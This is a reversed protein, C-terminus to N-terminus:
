FQIFITTQYLRNLSLITTNAHFSKVRDFIVQLAREYYGQGENLYGQCSYIISVSKKQQDVIEGTLSRDSFRAKFYKGRGIATKISHNDKDRALCDVSLGTFFVQMVFMKRRTALPIRGRLM